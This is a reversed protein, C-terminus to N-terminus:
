HMTLVSSTPVHCLCVHHCSVDPLASSLASPASVHPPHRLVWGPGLPSHPPSSPPHQFSHPFAEPPVMPAEEGWIRSRLRVQCPGAGGRECEGRRWVRPHMSQAREVKDIGTSNINMSSLSTGANGFKSACYDCGLYGPIGVGLFVAGNVLFVAVVVYLAFALPSQWGFYAM